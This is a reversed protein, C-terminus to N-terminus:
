PLCNATLITGAGTTAATVNGTMDVGTRLLTAPALVNAGFLQNGPGTDAIYGGTITTRGTNCSIGARTGAVLAAGCNVISPNSVSLTAGTMSIGTSSTGYINPDSLQIHLNNGTIEVGCGLHSAAIGGTRGTPSTGALEAEVGVIKHQDGYTDLFLESNGDQGLFGGTIRLGSVPNASTGLAAVGFSGNAYTSFNTLEGLSMGGTAGATGDICLGMANNQGSISDSISWQCPGGIGTKGNTVYFGHNYAFQSVARVVKSYDTPGLAFNNWNNQILLDLIKSLSNTGLWSLGDGGSVAAVARSISFDRLVIGTLGANVRLGPLNSNQILFKSANWGAGRLRTGSVSVLPTGDLVCTGPTLYIDLEGSALAAMVKTTDDTAGDIKAGFRQLTWISPIIIAASSGPALQADDVSGNPPTGIPIAARGTVYVNQVGLPVTPNFGVVQGSLTCDFQRGDDFYLGINAMSGYTNIVTISTSFGPAFQSAGAAGMAESAVTQSVSLTYTGAGGTGTGQATITPAGTVGAGFVTQGVALPTGSAFASVTMTTGSISATFTPGAAFTEILANTALATRLQAITGGVTAGSQTMFVLDADSFGTAAPFASLRIGTGTTM